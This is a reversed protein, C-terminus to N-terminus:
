EHVQKTFFIPKIEDPQVSLLDIWEDMDERSMVRNGNLVYCVFQYGRSTKTAFNKVTGYKEVIRGRLKSNDFAIM